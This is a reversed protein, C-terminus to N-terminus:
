IITATRGLLYRAFTAYDTDAMYHAVKEKTQLASLADPIDISRGLSDEMVDLFKAPHATELFIGIEDDALASLSQYGIAGHPDCLYRHTHYAEVIARRTGDDDLYFGSIDKRITVHDGKYLEQLRVFNSPNGVDMANSITAISPQPHYDGSALYDPVIKNVNTAAIFRHIPLGMKKALLGATLNGFNGSPVSVVVKKGYQKVQRYADFYYFSQPILRAFNISNASSLSYIKNVEPDLFAAKVLAQCDDFTGNVEVAHINHGLTTLQKEQLMSVKGSPYLIIVEIGLTQYFGAAVAGGTDGSTAVLITTKRDQNRLFYSMLQAMFRAGFDKFAMSPGHWLELSYRRDDLRVVPAEFDIATDIIRAIEVDPISGEFLARCVEYGIDRISLSEINDIISRDLTPISTPMYLGGEPALSQMVAERLDVIHSPNKTSYLQM